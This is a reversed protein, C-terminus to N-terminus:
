NTCAMTMSFVIISESLLLETRISKKGNNQDIYFLVSYNSIQKTMPKSLVGMLLLLVNKRM